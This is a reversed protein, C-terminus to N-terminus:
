VIRIGQYFTGKNLIRKTVGWKLINNTVDLLDRGFRPVGIPQIVQEACYVLYQHYLGESSQGNGAKVLEPGDNPECKSMLFGAVPNQEALQETRFEESNVTEPSDLIEQCEDDPMQLLLNVLGPIENAFEGTLVSGVGLLDRAKGEVRRSFHIQYRRRAIGSQYDSTKLTHEGTILVLGSFVFPVRKNVGKLEATLQEGASLSKLISVESGYRAIDNLVVLRKGVLASLEFRNKELRTPDTDHVFGDGALVRCLNGFTSKGSRSVGTIEAFVQNTKPRGKLVSRLVALLPRYDQRCWALWEKIKPCDAGPVYDFGLVSRNLNDPHHNKFEKDLIGNRFAIIGEKEPGLINPCSLWIRSVVQNCYNISVNLDELEREVEQVLEWEKAEEWFKGNWHFLRCLDIDFRYLDKWKNALWKAAKSDVPAKILGKESIECISLVKEPANRIRAQTQETKLAILNKSEKGELNKAAIKLEEQSAFEALNLAKVEELTKAKTIPNTWGAERAEWIVTGANAPEGSETDLSDFLDKASKRSLGEDGFAEIWNDLGDEKDSLFAAIRIRSPYTGQGQRYPGWSDGLFKLADLVTFDVPGETIKRTPRKAPLDKLVSSVLDSTYSKNTKCIIQAMSGQPHVFGAVRMIQGLDSLSTDGGLTLAIRKQLRTWEEGPVPSELKWYSHISKNGSFVQFTPELGISQWKTKKEELSDPGDDEHVLFQCKDKSWGNIPYGVSWGLPIKGSIRVSRGEDKNWIRLKVEDPEVGLLKFYELIQSDGAGYAVKPGISSKPDETKKDPAKKRTATM